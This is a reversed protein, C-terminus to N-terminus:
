LHTHGYCDWETLKSAHPPDRRQQPPRTQYTRKGRVLTLAPGELTNVGWSCRPLNSEEGGCGNQVQKRIGRSLQWGNWVFTAVSEVGFNGSIGYCLQWGRLSGCAVRPMVWRYRSGKEGWSPSESAVCSTI